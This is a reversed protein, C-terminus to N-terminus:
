PNQSRATNRRCMAAKFGKSFVQGEIQDLLPPTDDDVALEITLSSDSLINPLTHLPHVNRHWLRAGLASHNKVPDGRAMGSSEVIQTQSQTIVSGHEAGQQADLLDRIDDVHIAYLPLPLLPTPNGLGPEVQVLQGAEPQTVMQHRIVGADLLM